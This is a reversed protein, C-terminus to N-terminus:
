FFNKYRKKYHAKLLEIEQRWIIKSSPAAHKQIQYHIIPEINMKLKDAEENFNIKAFTLLKAPM